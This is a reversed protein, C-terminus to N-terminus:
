ARRTLSSAPFGQFVHDHLVLGESPSWRYVAVRKEVVEEVVFLYGADVGEVDPLFEIDSPHQEDTALLQAMPAVMLPATELIHEGDVPGDYCYWSVSGKDGEDLESHTLFFHISGDSLRHSRALGQHHDEGETSLLDNSM